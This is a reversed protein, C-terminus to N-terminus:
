DEEYTIEQDKHYIELISTILFLISSKIVINVIEFVLTILILFIHLFIIIFTTGYQIYYNNKDIHKSIKIYKIIIIM